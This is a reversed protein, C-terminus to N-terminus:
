SLFVMKTEVNQYPDFKTGVNLVDVAYHIQHNITNFDFSFSTSASAFSLFLPFIPKRPKAQRGIDM